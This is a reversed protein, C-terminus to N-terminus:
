LTLRAAALYARRWSGFPRPYSRRSAHGSTALEWEGATPWRGLEERARGLTCLLELRHAKRADAEPGLHGNGAAERM